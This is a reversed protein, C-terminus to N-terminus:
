LIGLLMGRAVLLVLYAVLPSLDFMGFPPLLRRIPEILWNTLAMVPRM